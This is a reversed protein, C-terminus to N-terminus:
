QVSINWSSAPPTSQPTGTGFPLAWAAVEAAQQPQAAGENWAERRFASPQLFPGSSLRSRFRVASLAAGKM